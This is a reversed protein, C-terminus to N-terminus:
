VLGARTTHVMPGMQSHSMFLAAMLVTLARGTMRVVQKAERDAEWNGRVITARGKPARLLTHSGGM